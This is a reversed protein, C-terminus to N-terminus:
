TTEEVRPKTYHDLESEPMWNGTGSIDVVYYENETDINEMVEKVTGTLPVIYTVNTVQEGVRYESM